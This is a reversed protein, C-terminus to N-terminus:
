SVEVLVKNETRGVSGGDDGGGVEGSGGKGSIAGYLGELFEEVLLEVGFYPPGVRGGLGTFERGLRWGLVM